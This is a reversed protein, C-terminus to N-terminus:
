ADRRMEFREFLAHLRALTAASPYGPDTPASVPGNAGASRCDQLAYRRVGAAALTRAMALLATEDLLDPRITTRCEFDGGHAVLAALSESAPAQAGRVGTVRAHRADDDLPAKVDLGVWDLRPLLERLRAPYIGATHLGVRFGLARVADVAAPLAPDLTPEGGSFVLADILGSRRALWRRLDAWPLPAPGPATRPQLHPNHCYVCRWPCGQVFVVAALSGPYDVSTFPVLGGIRLADAPEADRGGPPPAGAHEAPM